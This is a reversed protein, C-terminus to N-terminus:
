QYIDLINLCGCNCANLGQTCLRELLVDTLRLTIIMKHELSSSALPVRLTSDM